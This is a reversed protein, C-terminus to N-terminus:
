WPGYRSDDYTSRKKKKINLNNNFNENLFSTFKNIHLDM